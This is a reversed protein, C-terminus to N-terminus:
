GTMDETHERDMNRTDTSFTSRVMNQIFHGVDSQHKYSMWM